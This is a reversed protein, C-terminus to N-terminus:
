DRRTRQGHDVGTRQASASSSSALSHLALELADRAGISYADGQRYTARLSALNGELLERIERRQEEQLSLLLPLLADILVDRYANRYAQESAEVSSESQRESVYAQRAREGAALFTNPSLVDRLRAALAHDTM